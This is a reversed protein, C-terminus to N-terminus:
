AADRNINIGQQPTTGNVSVPQNPNNSNNWGNPTTNPNFGANTYSPTYPSNFPANAQPVFGFPSAYPQPVFGFPTNFPQGFPAYANPTTNWGPVFAPNYSNVPVSNWSQTNFWPSANFFPSPNAGFSNWSTFGPNFGPYFNSNFGPNYGFTNVGPVFGNPAGFTNSSGFSNFSPNFGFGTSPTNFGYVASNGFGNGFGNGFSTPGYSNASYSNSGFGWADYGVPTNTNVNFSPNSGPSFSNFAPNFGPTAGFPSFSNVSNWPSCFPSNAQYANTPFANAPFTNTPFTHSQPVSPGFSNSWTGFFSPTTVSPFPTSPAFTTTM